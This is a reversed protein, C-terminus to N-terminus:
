VHARGIQLKNIKHHALISIYHKVKDKDIWTRCVDLMFGRYDYQPADDIMCCAVEVPLEMHSYVSPPLLQLLTEVGNFAGAYTGAEVAIGERDVKLRYAEGRLADDLRLVIEGSNGATTLPETRLPLYEALYGALRDFEPSCVIRTASNITFKGDCQRYSGPQPIMASSSAAAFAFTLAPFLM